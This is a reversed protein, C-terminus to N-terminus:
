SNKIISVLLRILVECDERLKQPVEYIKTEEIVDLWFSTEDAEKLAIGLKNKFDKTGNLYDISNQPIPTPKGYPLQLRGEAPYLSTFDYYYVKKHTYKGIYFAENRGGFYSQRIYDDLKRNFKYIPTKSSEYHNKFYHKKSLSAGTYCDSINLGTFDYVADRFKILVELLGITDYKCYVRQQIEIDARNFNNININDYNGLEGLKKHEVNFENTLKDLSAPM